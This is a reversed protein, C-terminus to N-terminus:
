TRRLCYKFSIHLIAVVYSIYTVAIKKWVINIRQHSSTDELDELLNPFSKRPGQFDFCHEEVYTETHKEQFFLGTLSACM